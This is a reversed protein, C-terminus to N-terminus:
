SPFLQRNAEEAQKLRRYRHRLFLPLAAVVLAMLVYFGCWSRYFLTQWHVVCSIYIWFSILTLQLLGVIPIIWIWRRWRAGVGFVFPALRADSVRRGKKVADQIERRDASSLGDLWATRWDPNRGRLIMDERVLILRDEQDGQGTMEARPYARSLEGLLPTGEPNTRVYTRYGNSPVETDL